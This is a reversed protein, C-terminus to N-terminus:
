PVPLRVQKGIRGGPSPRFTSPRLPRVRLPTRFGSASRDSRRALGPLPLPFHELGTIATFVTLSGVPSQVSRLKAPVASLGVPLPQRVRFGPPWVKPRPRRTSPRPPEVWITRARTGSGSTSRGSRRALDPLPRALHGYGLLVTAPSWRSAAMDPFWGTSRLLSTTFGEPLDESSRLSVSLDESAPRPVVPRPSQGGALNCHGDDAKSPCRNKRQPSSSSLSRPPTPLRSLSLGIRRSVSVRPCRCDSRKPARISSTRSLLRRM